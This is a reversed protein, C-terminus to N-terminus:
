EFVHYGRRQAMDRFTALEAASLDTPIEVTIHVYLDGRKGPRRRDPMGKGSLRYVKGQQTGPEIRLTVNGDITPVSLQGGLVATFLDVTRTIHLDNGDRAFRPDDQVIVRLYLNGARGGNVGTGGRGAYRVRTGTQVGPPIKVTYEENGVVVRRQTGRYAEELTIEVDATVDQGGIPSGRRGRVGEYGGRFLEDLGGGFIDDVRSGRAQGGFIANFFESFISGPDGYEVRVGGPAGSVWQSWDFGGPQGGMRQWQQYSAGLQDYKARKESDSLVEYAENIEKFKAEAGPNGPNMDPHYERALKRFAKKIAKEDADRPIGLIKYYDKYEM